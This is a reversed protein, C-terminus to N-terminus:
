LFSLGPVAIRGQIEFSAGGGVPDVLEIPVRYDGALAFVPRPTRVTCLLQQYPWVTGDGQCSDPARFPIDGTNMIRYRLASTQAGPLEVEGRAPVVSWTGDADRVELIPIMALSAGIVIGEQSLIGRFSASQLDFTLHNLGRSMPVDFACLVFSAIRHYEDGCYYVQPGGFADPAKLRGYYGHLGESGPEIRITVHTSPGNAALHAWAAVGPTALDVDDGWNEVTMHISPAEPEQPGPDAPVVGTGGILLLAAVGALANM